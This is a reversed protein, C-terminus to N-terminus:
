ECGQNNKCRVFKKHLQLDEDCKCMDKIEHYDVIKEKKELWECGQNNM